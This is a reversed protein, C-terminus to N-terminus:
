LANPVAYVGVATLFQIVTITLHSNGGLFYTLLGVTLGALAVLFKNYKSLKIPGQKVPPLVPPLTTTTTITTPLTTTTPPLTTTTTETVPPETPQTPQTPQVPPEAPEPPATPATPAPADLVRPYFWGIIHAYDHRGVHTIGGDGDNQELCDFTNPNAIQVVATHGYGGGWTEDWVIIAGPRPFNTPGNLEKEYLGDPANAYTDKANGYVIPLGLMEEWAHPVATCQGEDPGTVSFITGNYRNILDQVSM